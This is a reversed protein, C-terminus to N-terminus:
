RFDVLEFHMGDPRRRYHGGWYFGLNNAIPVLERVSGRAGTAAPQRPQGNWEENIDFAAGFAHNSLTHTGGILRPAFAGSFTRVLHLLGADEWAKFLKQIPMAALRHVQMRGSGSQGYISIGRLQPITAIIINRKDWGDTITIGRGSFTAPNAVYAFSGFLRQANALTPPSLNPPPPYHNSNPPVNGGNSPPRRPPQNPAPPTPPQPRPAQPPTPQLFSEERAIRLTRPGVIGDPYLRNRKQFAVTAEHTRRGFNADIRGLSFGKRSLFHQWAAVDIGTMHPEQIELHRM